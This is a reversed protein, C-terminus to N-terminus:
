LHELADVRDDIFTTSITNIHLHFPLCLRQRLECIADDIGARIDRSQVPLLDYIPAPAGRIRRSTRLKLVDSQCGNSSTYLYDILQTINSTTTQNSSIEVRPIITGRERHGNTGCAERERVNRRVQYDQRRSSAM